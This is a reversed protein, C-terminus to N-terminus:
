GLLELIFLNGIYVLFRDTLGCSLNYEACKIFISNVPSDVGSFVVAGIRDM